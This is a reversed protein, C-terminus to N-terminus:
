GKREMHTSRGSSVSSGWSTGVQSTKMECFFLLHFYGQRWWSMAGLGAFSSAATPQLHAYPLLALLTIFVGCRLLKSKKLVQKSYKHQSWLTSTVRQWNGDGVVSQTQYRKIGTPTSLHTFSVPHSLRLYFYNFLSIHSLFINLIKRHTINYM